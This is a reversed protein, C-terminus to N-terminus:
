VRYVQFDFTTNTGGLGLQAAPVYLEMYGSNYDVYIAYPSSAGASTRLNIIRPIFYNTQAVPANYIVYDDMGDENSDIYIDFEAFYYYPLHWPSWANIAFTVIPGYTGSTWGYDVGVARIDGATDTGKPDSVLLPYVWLSSSIPGTHTIEFSAWDTDIDSIATEATIELENYPRPVFYFPVRLTDKAGVLAQPRAAAATTSGTMVLPLYLRHLPPPTFIINGYVEELEGVDAPLETMMFTFTATINTMAAPGVVVQSASFTVDLGPLSTVQSEWGVDYTHTMTDTNHLTVPRAIVYTDNHTAFYDSISVFDEDGVAHAPTSVARYADVRGAGQRPIPSGDALDVATNMMAAKIEEPTWDPHAQVMLAAVGAVHPAAMSTGNMSTGGSGSGMAAAFISGGPATIEPKLKSDTGRPGRSSFASIIDKAVPEDYPVSGQYEATM